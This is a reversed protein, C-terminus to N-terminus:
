AILLITYPAARSWVGYTVNVQVMAEQCDDKLGKSITEDSDSMM